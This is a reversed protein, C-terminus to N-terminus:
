VEQPPFPPRPNLFLSFLMSSRIGVLKHPSYVYNDAKCLRFVLYALVSLWPLNATPRYMYLRQFSSRPSGEKTKPGSLQLVHDRQSPLTCRSYVGAVSLYVTNVESISLYLPYLYVYACSMETFTVDWAICLFWTWSWLNSGVRSLMCGERRVGRRPLTTAM